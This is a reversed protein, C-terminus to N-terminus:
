AHALVRRVSDRDKVRDYYAMLAAVDPGDDDDDEEEERLLQTIGSREPGSGTSGVVAHLVPWLAFDALSIDPGAIYGSGSGSESQSARARAAWTRLESRFAQVANPAPSPIACAARYKNLLAAAEHFYTLQQQQQQQQQSPADETATEAKSRGYARDIYEMIAAGGRVTTKAADNDVFKIPPDYDHGYNLPVAAATTSSASGAGALSGHAYGVGRDALLLQVRLNALADPSLFLRPAASIHLVDFGGGYAGAWDFESAQNERGFARLMAVAQATQGNVVPRAEARTKGTAGQGWILVPETPKEANEDEEEEEEDDDDDEDQRHLFTAIRRFTLSIREGGFALENATKERGARRDQRIGHLWRMNTQLGMRCLSNHPLRARQTQRRPGDHNGSGSGPNGSEGDHPQPEGDGDFPRPKQQQQRKTRLVMVREAGLSVNAIFSGRAIDLTKDSHESIYDNGDRYLQILVHNVPHGLREEVVARIEAVAPTFARLPPSADAPHRYIPIGGGNGMETDADADTSTTTDGQVAVLRPVEGGQHSMRQWRVEDRVREFIDECLPRPLVDYLVQTDGECLPESANENVVLGSSGSM